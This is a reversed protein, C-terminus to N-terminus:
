SRVEAILAKLTTTGQWLCHILEKRLEGVPLAQNHQLNDRSLCLGLLTMRRLNDALQQLSFKHLLMLVVLKLLENGQDIKKVPRSAARRALRNIQAKQGEYREDYLQNRRIEQSITSLSRDILCTISRLSLNNLM